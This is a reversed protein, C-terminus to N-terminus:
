KFINMIPTHQCILKFFFLIKLKGFVPSFNLFELFYGWKQFGRVWFCLCDYKKKFWLDHTMIFTPTMIFLRTMIIPSGIKLLRGNLCACMETSDVVQYLKYILSVCLHLFFHNDDPCTPLIVTDVHDHHINQGYGGSMRFGRFPLGKHWYSPLNKKEAWAKTTWVEEECFFVASVMGFWNCGRYTHIKIYNLRFLTGWLM